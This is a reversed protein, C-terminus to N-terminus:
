RAQPARAEVFSEMKDGAGGLLIAAACLAMNRFNM